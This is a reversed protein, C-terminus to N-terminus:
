SGSDRWQNLCSVAPQAHRMPRQILFQIDVARNNVATAFSRGTENNSLRPARGTTKAARPIALFGHPDGTNTMALGVFELRFIESDM